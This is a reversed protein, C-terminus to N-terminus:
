GCLGAGQSVRVEMASELIEAAGVTADGRQLAGLPSASQRATAAALIQESNSYINQHEM